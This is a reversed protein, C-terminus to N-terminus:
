RKDHRLLWQDERLWSAVPNPGAETLLCEGTDIQSRM